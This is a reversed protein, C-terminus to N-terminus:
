HDGGHQDQQRDRDLLGVDSRCRSPRDGSQQERGGQRQKRSARGVLQAVSTPTVSAGSAGGPACIAWSSRRRRVRAVTSAFAIPASTVKKATPKRAGSLTLLSSSQDTASRFAM